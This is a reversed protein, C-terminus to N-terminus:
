SQLEEVLSQRDRAFEEGEFVRRGERQLYQILQEMDSKLVKGSGRRMKIFQPRDPDTFNYVYCWDAPSEADTQVPAREATAKKGREMLSNIFKTVLMSNFQQDPLVTRKVAERRRSM